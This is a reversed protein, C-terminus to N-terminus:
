LILITIERERVRVNVIERGLDKGNRDMLSWKVKDEM